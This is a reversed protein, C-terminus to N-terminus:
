AQAPELGVVFLGLEDALAAVADREVILLRGAEGVVGALGAAAAARVTDPGITPMDVRMEQIPKPAKALVGARAHAAGRLAEPLGAVRDLMGATGEQAEVALVLGRCVVAAQGIDLRGLARAVELARAADARADADPRIRGLPGAGLALDATVQQAGEVAFGEKEFEGLLFRLLADDGKRAAAIAGPLAALGRLDPKLAAFDPRAVLGALCVTECGAAKLAKICRGLEALGIEAGPYAALEPGAFGRLRVVFLPRGTRRCHEAIERPLGGGGAILGLKKM